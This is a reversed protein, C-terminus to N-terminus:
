REKSQWVEILGILVAVTTDTYRDYINARYAGYHGCRWFVTVIWVWEGNEALRMLTGQLFKDLHMQYGGQAELLRFERRKDGVIFPFIHDMNVIVWPMNFLIQYIRKMQDVTLNLNYRELIVAQQNPDYYANYEENKYSM